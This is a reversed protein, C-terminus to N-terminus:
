SLFASLFPDTESQKVSQTSGTSKEKIKTNNKIIELQKKNEALVFSQYAELPSRGNIIAEKVMDPFEDFTKDGLEPFADYLAAFSNAMQEQESSQRYRQEEQRRQAEQQRQMTMQQEKLITQNDWQLAAMDHATQEDLGRESMLQHALASIQDNRFANALHDIFGQRDMGHQYAMDDLQKLTPDNMLQDRQGRIRDYDMGKQALPIIEEQSVQVQSGNVKLTFSAPTGEEVDEAKDDDGRDDTVEEQSEEPTEEKPQEEGTFAELFDRDSGKDSETTGAESPTAEVTEVSVNEEFM